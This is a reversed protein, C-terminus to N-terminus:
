GGAPGAARSTPLDVITIRGTFMGMSCAYNLVGPGMAPLDIHNDGVRLRREIGLSPVVLSASCSAETASEITWRTPVGAAIVVNGPEYGWAEQRTTLTQVGDTGITGDLSGAVPTGGFSPIGIGALTLGAGLNIVAFGLVVVGVVRLATAKAPAPIVVPLGALALLGPATGLAFIGLLAAAYAPSGTSLAFVQVAQTFGCPLFFSAAGLVAARADSYTGGDGGSGVIRALATPLTPSWTAIRPSVGTLRIGLITMLVAVVVMLVATLAAPMAVTAGIAGLAAGLAAYGAIRGALFVLAPRMRSTARGGATAAASASLALVLGGVLAACTSVGAALGILLAVALGGSGLDGLGSALDTVGTLSALLALIVVWAAAVAVTAWVGPDREIWPTSGIEYGALRIARELAWPALPATSAIEVRGRPASATVATVGPIRGVQKQIRLECARCTM